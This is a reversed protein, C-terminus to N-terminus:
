REKAGVSERRIHEAAPKIGDLPLHEMIFPMEPDYSEALTIYTKYDL